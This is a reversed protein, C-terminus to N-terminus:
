DVDLKNIVHNPGDALVVATPLKPHTSLHESTRRINSNEAPLKFMKFGSAEPPLQAQSSPVSYSVM